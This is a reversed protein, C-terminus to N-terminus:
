EGEEGSVYRFSRKLGVGRPLTKKKIFKLNISTSIFVIALMIVTIYAFHMKESLLLAIALSLNWAQGPLLILLLLIIIVEIIVFAKVEFSESLLIMIRALAYGVVLFIMRKKCKNAWLRGILYGSLASIAVMCIQGIMVTFFSVKREDLFFYFEDIQMSTKAIEEVTTIFENGTIKPLAFEIILLDIVTAALVIEGLIIVSSLDIKKRSIIMNNEVKTACIGLAIGVFFFIIGLPGDFEVTGKDNGVYIVIQIIYTLIYAALAYLFINKSSARLAKLTGRSKRM